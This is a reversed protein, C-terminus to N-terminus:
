VNYIAEYYSYTIEEPDKTLYYAGDTALDVEVKKSFHHITKYVFSDRIIRHANYFDYLKVKSRDSM